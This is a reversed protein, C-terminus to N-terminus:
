YVIIRGPYNKIKKDKKSLYFTLLGRRLEAKLFNTDADPPLEIQSKTTAKKHHRDQQQRSYILLYSSTTYVLLNEKELQGIYLLIKYIDGSDIIQTRFHKIPLPDISDKELQEEIGPEPHYIGPYIDYEFNLVSYM